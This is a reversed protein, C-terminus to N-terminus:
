YEYDVDVTDINNGVNKLTDEFTITSGSITYDNGSGARQRIGNLYVGLILTPANALDSVVASGNTVTLIEGIVKNPNQASEVATELEQLLVKLVSNATLTSGTFSGFNVANEAVGTLTILDNVNTDIEDQADKLVKGQRADLVSNDAVTHTLNNVINGTKLLDPSETNDVKFFASGDDPTGTVSTQCYLNDGVALEIPNTGFLTGAVTVKYWWGAQANDLQSGILSADLGGKLILNGSIGGIANNLQQLTVPSTNNTADKLGVFTADNNGGTIDLDGGNLFNTVLHAKNLQANRIQSGRVATGM